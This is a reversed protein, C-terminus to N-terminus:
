RPPEHDPRHAPDGRHDIIKTIEVGKASQFARMMDDVTEGYLVVVPYPLGYEALERCIPKGEKLQQVNGASLGLVLLTM